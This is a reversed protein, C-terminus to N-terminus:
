MLKTNANAVWGLLNVVKNLKYNRPPNCRMGGKLSTNKVNFYHQRKYSGSNIDILSFKAM